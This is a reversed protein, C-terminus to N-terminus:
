FCFSVGLGGRWEMVTLKIKTDMDKLTFERLVIYASYSYFWFRDKM